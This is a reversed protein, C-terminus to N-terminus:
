CWIEMDPCDDGLFTKAVYSWLERRADHAGEGDVGGRGSLEMADWLAVIAEKAVSRQEDDAIEMPGRPPYKPEEKKRAPVVLGSSMMECKM